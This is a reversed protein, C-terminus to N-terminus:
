RIESRGYHSFDSGIPFRFSKVLRTTFYRQNTKYIAIMIEVNKAKKNLLNGEM